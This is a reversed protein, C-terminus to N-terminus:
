GKNMLPALPGDPKIMEKLVSYPIIVHQPGSAYSAVQYPDYTIALGKKSINWGQYNAADPGAGNQIWEDDVGEPGLRKKLDSVAYRSIAELYNSGPKFLDGLQLTKGNKLDYNYVKGYSNPHAAGAEYNSVSFLVSVLEDTALVVDPSMSIYSSMEPDAPTDEASMEEMGKKFDNVEKTALSKVGQNFKDANPMNAGTLELYEMDVSYKKKKDEEKM